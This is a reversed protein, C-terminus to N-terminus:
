AARLDGRSRPNELAASSGSEPATHLHPRRQREDKELSPNLSAPCHGKMAWTSRPDLNTEKEDSSDRTCVM